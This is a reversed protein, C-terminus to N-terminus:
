NLPGEGFIQARFEWLRTAPDQLASEHLDAKIAVARLFTQIDWGRSRSVQPLLLGRRQGREIACGHQGAIMREASRVRKLPTLVSIEVSFGTEGRQVPQFRPDETAAAQTLDPVAEVLPRRGSVDGVCGRLEGRQHLTVFVGSHRRLAPSGATEPPHVTAGTLKDLTRRAAALLVRQDEEDVLFSTTRYYGLAAYSVSHSWEGTIEGSTQYDLQQQYIEEGELHRLTEMLLAVPARGCMTSGTEKLEQLLLGSDLSGAGDIVTEDMQQLKAAIQGDCPFPVFGFSAGYHTFDSSAVLVTGPTMLGALRAAAQCREQGDLDGIYIPLLRVDPLTTALLPLQVDVSHDCVEARRILHGDVIDAATAHDVAVDGLPTRYADIPPVLLGRHHRRHSFGLLIVRSAGNERLNRYAAAAVKGSYVPAAHPVVFALPATPFTQATRKLSAQFVEGMLGTLESPDAPFWSGCYPSEHVRLM